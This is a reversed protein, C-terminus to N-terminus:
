KFCEPLQHSIESVRYCYEKALIEEVERSNGIGRIGELM